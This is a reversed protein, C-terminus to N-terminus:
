QVRHFLSVLTVLDLDYSKRRSSYNIAVYKLITKYNIPLEATDIFWDCINQANKEISNDYREM